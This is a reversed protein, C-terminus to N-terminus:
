IYGFSAGQNGQWYKMKEEMPLSMTERGMEFMLEFLEDAGHNNLSIARSTLWTFGLLFNAPSVVLFRVRYCGEL